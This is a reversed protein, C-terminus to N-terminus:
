VSPPAPSLSCYSPPNEGEQVLPPAIEQVEPSHSRGSLSGGDAIWRAFNRDLEAQLGEGEDDSIM